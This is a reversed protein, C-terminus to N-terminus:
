AVTLMGKKFLSLETFKILSQIKSTYVHRKIPIM